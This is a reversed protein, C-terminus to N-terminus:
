LWGSRYCCYHDQGGACQHCGRQCQLPEDRDNEESLTKSMFVKAEDNTDMEQIAEDEKFQYPSYKIPSIANIQFYEKTEKESGGTVNELQDLEMIKTKSDAM